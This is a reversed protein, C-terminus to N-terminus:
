LEASPRIPFLSDAVFFTNFNALNERKHVKLRPFICYVRLRKPVHITHKPGDMMTLINSNKKM